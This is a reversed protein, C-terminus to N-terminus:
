GMLIIFFNVMCQIAVLSSVNYEVVSYLSKVFTNKAKLIDYM